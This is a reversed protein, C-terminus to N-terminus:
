HCIATQLAQELRFAQDSISHGVELYNRGNNGYIRLQESSQVLEVIMAAAKQPDSFPLLIGCDAQSIIERPEGIDTAIVPLEMAMYEFLKIPGKCADYHNNRLPLLGATASAYYDPMENYPVSGAFVVNELGYAAAREKIEPLYEGEGIILLTLSAEMLQIRRFIDLVYQRDTEQFFVAPWIIVQGAIGFKENIYDGNWSNRDFKALDATNPIYIAHKGWFDALARSAVTTPPKLVMLLRESVFEQIYLPLRWWKNIESPFTRDDVDLLYGIGKMKAVILSLLGTITYAKCPLLIDTNQDSINLLLWALEFYNRYGHYIVGPAVTETGEGLVLFEFCFGESVLELCLPLLRSRVTPCEPRYVTPIVVRVRKM